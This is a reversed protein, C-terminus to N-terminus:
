RGPGIAAPSDRLEASKRPRDCLHGAATGPQVLGSLKEYTRRVELPKSLREQEAEDQRGASGAEDPQHGPLDPQARLPQRQLTRIDPGHQHVPEIRGGQRRAKFTHSRPILSHPGHRQVMRPTKLWSRLLGRSAQACIFLQTPKRPRDRGCAAQTAPRTLRSLATPRCIASRRYARRPKYRLKRSFPRLRHRSTHTTWTPARRHPFLAALALNARFRRRDPKDSGRGLRGGGDLRPLGARGPRGQAVAM